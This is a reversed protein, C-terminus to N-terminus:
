ANAGSALLLRFPAKLQANTRAPIGQFELPTTCGGCSVAPRMRGLTISLAIGVEIEEVPGSAGAIAKSLERLLPDDVPEASTALGM